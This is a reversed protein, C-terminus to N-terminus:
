EAPSVVGSAGLKSGLIERYGNVFSAVAAPSKGELQVEDLVLLGDGTVVGAGKGMAVVTGPEGSGPGDTHARLVRLQKGQWTSWASPWPTMARVLREIKEAPLSWDVRGDAKEVAHCHTAGSEEQPRAHLEGRLYGPLTEVLLEAGLRALRPELSGTTDDPRIRERRWALMPGTDLGEDLQMITVGTEADGALIAAGIPWAGRWRPLLSAHVNLHGLRPVGLVAPRLIKGYAAVVGVDAGFRALEDVVSRRRLSEPQLVQVGHALALVKVPPPSLM